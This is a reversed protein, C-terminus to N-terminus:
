DNFFLVFLVAQRQFKLYQSSVPICREDVFSISFCMLDKQFINSYIIINLNNFIKNVFICM